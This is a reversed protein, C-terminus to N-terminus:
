SLLQQIRLTSARDDCAMAWEFLTQRVTTTVIGHHALRDVVIQRDAERRAFALDSLLRVEYGRSASEIAAILVDEELYLGGLFVIGVDADALHAAFAPDRWPSLAESQFHEIAAAVEESLSGPQYEGFAILPAGLLDRCIPLLALAEFCRIAFAEAGGAVSGRALNLLVVRSHRPDALM